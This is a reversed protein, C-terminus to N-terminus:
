LVLDLLLGRVETLGAVLKLPDQQGQMLLQALNELAEDVKKVVLYVVFKGDKRQGHTEAAKYSQPLVRTMFKKVASKYEEFEGRGQATMLRRAREDVEAIMPGLESRLVPDSVQQIRELVGPSLNPMTPPIPSPEGGPQNPQSGIPDIRM